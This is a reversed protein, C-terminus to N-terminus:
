EAILIEHFGLINTLDGFFVYPTGLQTGNGRKSTLEGRKQHKFWTLATTEKQLVGYDRKRRPKSILSSM